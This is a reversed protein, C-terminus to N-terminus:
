APPLRLLIRSGRPTNSRFDITGGSRNIIWNVIWLGLGNSHQLPTERGELLVTQEQVPIGPGNDAIEVTVYGGPDTPPEVTARVEPADADNHEAANELVQEIAVDLKPGARVALQGPASTEVTLDPYAADLRDASERLLLAVDHVTQEVRHSEIIDSLVGATDALDQLKSTSRFLREFDAASLGECREALDEVGAMIVNLRNRLNHRIMRHLVLAQQQSEKRGSVERSNVVYGTIPSDPRHSGISELWAWSGDARRFRYERRDTVTGTGRTLQDFMEEVAPRDDPHVYDTFPESRTDEPRYGLGKELSPSQYRITRDRKVVTILDSSHEILGQFWERQERDTRDRIHNVLHPRGDLEVVSASMEAPLIDGSKGYCTVDDTWGAGDEFVGEAFEMFRDLNHPHLDSAPMSLLEDRSYEVLDTAAPNCDVISDREVDVIFIADNAHEFITEFKRHAADGGSGGDTTGSDEM